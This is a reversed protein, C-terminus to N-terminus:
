RTTPCSSSLTGQNQAAVNSMLFKLINLGVKMIVTTLNCFVDLSLSSNPLLYVM